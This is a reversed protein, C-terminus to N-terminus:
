LCFVAYSICRHSSNLRTSKRDLDAQQHLDFRLLREVIDLGDAGDVADVPHEDARGVQVGREAMGAFDRIGFHFREDVLRDPADALRAPRGSDQSGVFGVRAVPELAARQEHGDPGVDAYERAAGFREGGFELGSVIFASIMRVACPWAPVMAVSCFSNVQWLSNSAASRAVKRFCCAWVTRPSAVKPGIGTSPLSISASGLSSIMELKPTPTSAMLRSSAFFRPMM